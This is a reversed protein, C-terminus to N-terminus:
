YLEEGVTDKVCFEEGKKTEDKKRGFSSFDRWNYVRRCRKEVENRNIGRLEQLRGTGEMGDM